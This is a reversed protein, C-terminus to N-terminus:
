TLTESVWAAGNYCSLVNTDTAFFVSVGTTDDTPRDAALGFVIVKDKIHRRQVVGPMIDMQYIRKQELFEIRRMLGKILEATNDM